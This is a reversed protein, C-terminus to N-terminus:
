NRVKRAADLAADITRLEPSAASDYDLRACIAMIAGRSQRLAEVCRDLAATLQDHSNVAELIFLANARQTEKKGHLTAFYGDCGTENSDLVIEKDERNAYFIIWPTPTRLNKDMNRSQDKEM